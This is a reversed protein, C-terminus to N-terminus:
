AKTKQHTSKFAKDLESSFEAIASDKLKKSFLGKRRLYREMNVVPNSVAKRGAVKWPVCELLTAGNGRHAHAVAETYVRYVAVADDGDVVVGPFGYEQAKACTPAADSSSHCVFLIPLSFKGAARMAEELEPADSASGCFAVVIKKNRRKKNEKAALVARDLQAKLGLSPPIM